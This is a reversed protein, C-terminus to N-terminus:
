KILFGIFFGMIVAITTLIFDIWDDKEWHEDIILGGISLCIAWWSGIGVDAQFKSLIDPGSVIKTYLGGYKKVNDSNM